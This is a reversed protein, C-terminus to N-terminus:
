NLTPGAFIPDLASPAIVSPPDLCMSGQSIKFKLKELICMKM